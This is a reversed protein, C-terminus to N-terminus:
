PSSFHDDLIPVMQPTDLNHFSVEDSRHGECPTWRAEPTLLDFCFVYLRM